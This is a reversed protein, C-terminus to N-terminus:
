EPGLTREEKKELSDYWETLVEWASQGMEVGRADWNIDGEVARMQEIIGLPVAAGRYDTYLMSTSTPLQKYIRRRQQAPNGVSMYLKEELPPLVGLVNYNYGEDAYEVYDNVPRLLLVEEKGRKM